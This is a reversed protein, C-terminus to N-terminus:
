GPVTCRSRRGMGRQYSSWLGRGYRFLRILAIMERKDYKGGYYGVMPLCGLGIASVDLKGLRRYEMKENPQLKDGVKDTEGKTGSLPAHAFVRSVGTAAGATLLAFSSAKKLFNRRDM